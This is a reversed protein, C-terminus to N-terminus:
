GLDRHNLSLNWDADFARVAGRGPTAHPQRRVGPLGACARIALM